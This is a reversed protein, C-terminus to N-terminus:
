EKFLDSCDLRSGCNPCTIKCSRCEQQDCGCRDCRKVWYTLLKEPLESIDTDDDSNFMAQIELRLQELEDSTDM